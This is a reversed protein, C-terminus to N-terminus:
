ACRVNNGELKNQNEILYDCLAEIVHIDQWFELEEPHHGSKTRNSVIAPALKVSFIPNDVALYVQYAMDSYKKGLNISDMINGSKCAEEAKSKFKTTLFEINAKTPPALIM